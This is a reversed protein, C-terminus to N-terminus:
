FPQRTEFAYETIGAKSLAYIIPKIHGYKLSQDVALVVLSQTKSVKKALSTAMSIDLMQTELYDMFPKLQSLDSNKQTWKFVKRNATTAVIHENQLSVAIWISGEEAPSSLFEITQAHNGLRPNLGLLIHGTFITILMFSIICPYPFWNSHSYLREKLSYISKDM